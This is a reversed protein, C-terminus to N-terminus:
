RLVTVAGPATEASELRRRWAALALPERVPSAAVVAEVAWQSRLFVRPSSASPRSKKRHQEGHRYRRQRWSGGSGGVAVAGAYNATSATIAASFGGSGGGGGVSQAFIGDSANGLTTINGVSTVETGGGNSGTGGSGGLSVAASGLLAQSGSLSVAVGGNGGGGGVSQALIGASNDGATFINDAYTANGSHVSVQGASAGGAGSGGLSLSASGAGGYVLTGSSVEAEVEAASRSPWSAAPIKAWHSWLGAM